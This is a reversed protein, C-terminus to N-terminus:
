AINDKLIVPIGHLPGRVVGARREDDRRTATTIAHPNTEIVAAVLPNLRDIRRLYGKTLERSTLQGTKM